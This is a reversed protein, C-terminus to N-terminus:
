VTLLVFNVRSIREMHLDYNNEKPGYDSFIVKLKEWFNVLFLLPLM